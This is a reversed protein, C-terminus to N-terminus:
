IPRFILSLSFLFGTDPGVASLPFQYPLYSVKGEASFDRDVRVRIGGTSFFLQETTLGQGYTLVRHNFEMLGSMKMRLEYFLSVSRQARHFALYEVRGVAYVNDPWQFTGPGLIPNSADLQLPLTTEYHLSEYFSFGGVEQGLLLGLAEQPAGKGTSLLPSALSFPNTGTSFRYWGDLAVFNGKERVGTLLYTAAVEVDGFKAVNHTNGQADVLVNAEFPITARVQLQDDLWGSAQVGYEIGRMTYVTPNPPGSLQQVGKFFVDPVGINVWYFNPREERFLSISLPDRSFDSVPYAELEVSWAPASSLWLGLFLGPLVNGGQRLIRKFFLEM